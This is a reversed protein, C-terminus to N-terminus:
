SLNNKDNVSSWDFKQGCETCHSPPTSPERNLADYNIGALCCPCLYDQKSEPFPPMGAYQKTLADMLVIIEPNFLKTNQYEESFRKRLNESIKMQKEEDIDYSIEKIKTKIRKDAEEVNSAIDEAFERTNFKYAFELSTTTTYFVNEDSLTVAEIYKSNQNTESNDTTIEILYVSKMITNKM